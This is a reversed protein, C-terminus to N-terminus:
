EEPREGAAVSRVLDVFREQEEVFPVHGSDEFPVFAGDAFVHEATHAADELRATDDHAGQVCCVPRDIGTAYEYLRGYDMTAYIDLVDLVVDLPTEMAIRYFQERTRSETQDTFLGDVFAWMAAPNDLRHSEKLAQFDLFNDEGSDADDARRRHEAALGEFIGTSTLLLRDLRDDDYQGLYTVGTTAGLSWGVYTVDTLDLHDLLAALDAALADDTCTGYPAESRGHGRLDVTVLRHDAPVEAFLPDWVRHSMFGGHVCVIPSGSGIDRYYLDVGAAPSFTPM